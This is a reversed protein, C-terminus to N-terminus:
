TTADWLNPGWKGSHMRAVSHLLIPPYRSLSYSEQLTTRPLTLNPVPLGSYLPPLGYGYTDNALYTTWQINCEYEKTVLGQDVYLTSSCYMHYIILLQCVTGADARSKLQYQFSWEGSVALSLM